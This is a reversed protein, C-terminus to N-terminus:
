DGTQQYLCTFYTFKSPGETLPKTALNQQLAVKIRDKVATELHPKKTKLFLQM